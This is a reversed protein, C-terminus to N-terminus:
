EENGDDETIVSIKYEYKESNSTTMMMDLLEIVKTYDCVFEIGSYSGKETVVLKCM